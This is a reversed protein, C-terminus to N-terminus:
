PVYRLALGTVNDMTCHHLKCGRLTSLDCSKGVSRYPTSYHCLWASDVESLRDGSGALGVEIGLPLFTRPDGTESPGCRPKRSKRLGLGSKGTSYIM